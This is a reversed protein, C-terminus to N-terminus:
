ARTVRTNVKGRTLNGRRGPSTQAFLALYAAPDAPPRLEVYPAYMTALMDSTVPEGFTPALDAWSTVLNARSAPVGSTPQHKAHCGDHIPPFEFYTVLHALVYKINAEHEEVLIQHRSRKFDDFYLLKTPENKKANYARRVRDIQVPACVANFGYSDPFAGGFRYPLAWNDEYFLHYFGADLMQGVRKVCSMHDDLVVLTRARVAPDPILRHWNVLGFDSFNAGMLHTGESEKYRLQSSPSPDLSIIHADPGAGQRILWTGLGHYVGSEIVVPPRLKRATFWLAFGHNINMGWHNKKIPRRAYTKAFEPLL